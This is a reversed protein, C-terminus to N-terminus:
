LIDNRTRRQEKVLAEAAKQIQKMRKSREEATLDPRHVRVTMGPFDYTTIRDQGTM